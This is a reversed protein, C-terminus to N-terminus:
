ITRDHSVAPEQEFQGQGFRFHRTGHKQRKASAHGEKRGSGSLGGGHRWDALCAAQSGDWIRSEGFSITGVVMAPSKLPQIVDPPNHWFNNAENSAADPRQRAMISSSTAKMRTATDSGPLGDRDGVWGGATEVPITTMGAGGRATRRWQTLNQPLATARRPWFVARLFRPDLHFGIAVWAGKGAAWFLFCLCAYIGTEAQSLRPLPPGAEDSNVVDKARIQLSFPDQGSLAPTQASPLPHQTHLFATM